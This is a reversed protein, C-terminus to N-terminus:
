RAIECYPVCAARTRSRGVGVLSAGVVKTMANSLREVAGADDAGICVTVRHGDDSRAVEVAVLMLGSVRIRDMLRGLATHVDAAHLELYYHHM